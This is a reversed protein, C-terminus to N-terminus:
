ESLLWNMLRISKIGEYEADLGRDLSIVIKEYNNRIKQLPKLERSRIEESRMTEAVQIYIKEEGNDAVFDVELDDVKGVAVDYGRGRLEFYVINELIHGRDRDRFGLLYNRLGIDAIYYKGLTKLYERGKIDFRKVDYFLYSEKLAAIYAAITQIAPKGQKSRDIM